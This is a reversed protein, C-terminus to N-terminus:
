TQTFSTEILKYLRSKAVMDFVLTAYMALFMTSFVMKRKM